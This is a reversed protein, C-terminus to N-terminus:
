RQGHHDGGILRPRASDGVVELSPAGMRLALAYAALALVGNVLYVAFASEVSLAFAVASFM